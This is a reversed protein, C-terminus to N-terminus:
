RRHVSRLQEVAGAHPATTPDPPVPQAPRPIRPIRAPGTGPKGGAAPRYQAILRYDSAGTVRAPHGHDYVWVTFGEAVQDHAWVEADEADDTQSVRVEDRRPAELPGELARAHLHYRSV